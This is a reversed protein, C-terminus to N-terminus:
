KPQRANAKYMEELTVLTVEGREAADKLGKTFGGKSFVYYYYKSGKGFVKAYDKMRELEDIGVATNRYKCSCIYFVDIRIVVKVLRIVGIM